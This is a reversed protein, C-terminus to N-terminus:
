REGDDRVMATRTTARHLRHETVVVGRHEASGGPAPVVMLGCVSM